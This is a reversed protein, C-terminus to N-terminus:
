DFAEPPFRGDAARSHLWFLRKTDGHVLTEIKRVVELSADVVRAIYTATSQLGIGPDSMEPDSIAWFRLEKAQLFGAALRARPNAHVIADRFEKAEELLFKIEPCNNEQLVPDRKNLIIRPYHILKDRFSVLREKDRQSDWELLRDSNVELPKPREGRQAQIVCDFAISNLYAEVMYFANLIAGRRMAVAEKLQFKPATERDPFQEDLESTRNFAAAMDEFLTAELIRIESARSRDWLGQIDCMLRAAEPLADIHPIVAAIGRFMDKFEWVAPFAFSGPSPPPHRRVFDVYWELKKTPKLVAVLEKLRTRHQNLVGEMKRMTLTPLHVELREVSERVERSYQRSLILLTVQQQILQDLERIFRQRKGHLDTM